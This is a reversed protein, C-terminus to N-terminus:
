REKGTDSGAREAPYVSGSCGDGRGSGDRDPCGHGATRGHRDDCQEADVVSGDRGVLRPASRAPANQILGVSALAERVDAALFLSGTAVIREGERARDLSHELAMRPSEIAVAAVGREEVTAALEDPAMAKPHESRTAVVEVIRPMPDGLLVDLMSQLDKGIGVGLIIRLAAEPAVEALTERMALMAGPNHAGDVILEPRNPGLDFREFRAPWRAAALGEQVASRSIDWGLHELVGCIGAAVGANVRQHAGELGLVANLPREFLRGGEEAAGASSARLEIAQGIKSPGSSSVRIDKGVSTRPCGLRLREAEIVAEAEPDQPATVVPVGPRLIGVKDSAIQGLTFGLIERHDLSIPTIATVAPRVVRTTDLRGGLGVEVVAIDVSRRTFHEFALATLVEFTTADSFSELTTKRRNIWEIVEAEDIPRGDVQTRERVTHLHPSTYLGVRYGASRLVSAVMVSTSGKGNTGAVHVASWAREPNNLAALLRGIRDLEFVHARSEDVRRTEWNTFSYLYDLATQWETTM